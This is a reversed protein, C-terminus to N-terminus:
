RSWLIIFNAKIRNLFNFLCVIVSVTEFTIFAQVWHIVQFQGFLASVLLFGSLIKSYTEILYTQQTVFFVSDSIRCRDFATREIKYTPRYMVHINM